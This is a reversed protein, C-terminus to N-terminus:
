QAAKAARAWGAAANRGCSQCIWRALLGHPAVQVVGSFSLPDCPDSAVCLSAERGCVCCAAGDVRRAGLAM